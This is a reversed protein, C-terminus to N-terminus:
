DTTNEGTNDCQPRNGRQYTNGRRNNKFKNHHTRLQSVYTRYQKEIDSPLNTHTTRRKCTSFCHGRIHWNNCIFEDNFKVASTECAELNKYHVLLSYKEDPLLRIKNDRQNNFVKVRKEDPKDDDSNRKNSGSGAQYPKGSGTTLKSTRALQEVYWVPPDAKFNLTDISEIEDYISYKDFNVDLIDDTRFCQHLMSQVKFHLRNLLWVGFFDHESFAQYYHQLNGNYHKILPSTTLHPIQSDASFCDKLIADFNQVQSIFLDPRNPVYPKCHVLKAIDTASLNFNSSSLEISNLEDNSMLNFGARSPPTFFVSFTNISSPSPSSTFMCKTINLAMGQQVLLDLSPHWRTLLKATTGGNKTHIMQQLRQNPLSPINEEDACSAFLVGQRFTPDIKLWAKTSDDIKKSLANDDPNPTSTNTPDRTFQRNRADTLRDNIVKDLTSVVSNSDDNISITTNQINKHIKAHKLKSWEIANPDTASSHPTTLQDTMDNLTFAYLCILIDTFDLAFDWENNTEEDDADIITDNTKDKFTAILKIVKHLLDTTSDWTTDMVITYLSPPLVIARHITTENWDDTPTLDSLDAIPKDHFTMLTDLSPTRIPDTTKSLLRNLDLYIPVAQSEFGTLAICKMSNNTVHSMSDHNHTAVITKHVPDLTLIITTPSSKLHLLRLAKDEPTLPYSDATLCKIITERHEELSELDPHCTIYNNWTATIM